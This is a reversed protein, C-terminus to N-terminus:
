VGDDEFLRQLYSRRGARKRETKLSADEREELADELFDVMARYVRKRPRSADGTISEVSLRDALAQVFAPNERWALALLLKLKDFEKEVHDELQNREAITDREAM